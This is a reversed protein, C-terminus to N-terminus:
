TINYKTIWLFESALNPTVRAHCDPRSLHCRHSLLSWPYLQVSIYSSYSPQSWISINFFYLTVSRGSCYPNLLRLTWSALDFLHFVWQQPMAVCVWQLLISVAQVIILSLSLPKPKPHIPKQFTYLYGLFRQLTGLTWIANRQRTKTQKTLRFPEYGSWSGPRESETQM